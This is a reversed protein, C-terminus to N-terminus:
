AEDGRFSKWHQFGHEVKFNWGKLDRVSEGFFDSRGWWNKIEQSNAEIPGGPCEQLNKWVEEEQKQVCNPEYGWYNTAGGRLAEEEKM